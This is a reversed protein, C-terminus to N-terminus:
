EDGNDRYLETMVISVLILLGSIVLTEFLSPDTFVLFYISTIFYLLTSVLEAIVFMM